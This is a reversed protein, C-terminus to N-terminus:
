PDENEAREIKTLIIFSSLRASRRAAPAGSCSGAAPERFATGLQPREVGDGVGQPMRPWLLTLLKGHRHDAVLEGDQNHGPPATMRLQGRLVGPRRRWTAQARAARQPSASAQRRRTLFEKDM